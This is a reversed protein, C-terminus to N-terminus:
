PHTKIREKHRRILLGILSSDQTVVDFVHFWLTSFYFKGFTILVMKGTSSAVKLMVEWTLGEKQYTLYTNGVTWFSAWFVCFDKPKDFLTYLVPVDDLRTNFMKISGYTESLRTFTPFACIKYKIMFKGTEFPNGVGYLIKSWDYTGFISKLLWHTGQVPASVRPLRLHYTGDTRKGIFDATSGVVQMSYLLDKQAEFTAICNKFIGGIQLNLYRTGVLETLRMHAVFAKSMKEFGDISYCDQMAFALNQLRNLM